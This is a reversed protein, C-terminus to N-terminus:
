RLLVLKRVARQDGARVAAFYLGPGLANGADDTGDWTLTFEGAEYQSDAVMAVQRGRVDHIAARVPAGEPLVLRLATASTFPNPEAPSLGLAPGNEDGPYRSVGATAGGVDLAPDGFLNYNYLNMYEYVRDWGYVSTAHYKGDYLADGVREGEAVLYRNFEYCIQETGGPSNRWDASIAAPRSSSVMGVSAGWGPLTLLDIGCNGYPNPDPYGVNCSIAFVV